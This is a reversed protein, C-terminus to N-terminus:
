YGVDLVRVIEDAISAPDKNETDVVLDALERYLPIREALLREIEPLTGANTLRPRRASTTADVTLRKRITEPSATLWVVNGSRRLLERNDARLVVGGGLALVVRDRRCLDELVQSELNRFAPEGEEDFIAAITKGACRELEADADLWHWGLRSALQEAVTTKGTGRYGILFLNMM